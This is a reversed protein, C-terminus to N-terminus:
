LTKTYICGYQDSTGSPTLVPEYVQFDDLLGTPATQRKSFADDPIRRALAGQVTSTAFVCLLLLSRFNFLLRLNAMIHQASQSCSLSETGSKSTSPSSSWAVYEFGLEVPSLIHFVEYRRYTRNSLQYTSQESVHDRVASQSVTHLLDLM